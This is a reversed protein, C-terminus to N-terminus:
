QNGGNARNHRVEVGGTWVLRAETWIEIVYTGPTAAELTAVVEFPCICDCPMTVAEHEVLKLVNNDQKFDVVISDLCCNLFANRHTVTVSMGDVAVEVDASSLETGIPDGPTLCEKSHSYGILRAQRAPVLEVDEGCSALACVLAVLPAGIAASTRASLMTAERRSGRRM